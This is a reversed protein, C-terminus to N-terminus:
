QSCAKGERQVDAQTNVHRLCVRTDYICIFAGDIGSIRAMRKTESKKGTGERRRM